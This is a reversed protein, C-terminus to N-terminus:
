DDRDGVAEGLTAGLRLGEINNDTIGDVLGVKIRVEYGENAVVM